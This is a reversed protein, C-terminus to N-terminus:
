GWMTAPVGIVMVNDPEDLGVPSASCNAMAVGGFSPVSPAIVWTSSVWAVTTYEGGASAQGSGLPTDPNRQESGNKKVTCSM